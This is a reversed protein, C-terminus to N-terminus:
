VAVIYALMDNGIASDFSLGWHEVGDELIVAFPGEGTIEAYLLRSRDEEGQHIEERMMIPHGFYPTSYRCVIWQSLVVEPETVDTVCAPNEAHNEVGSVVVKGFLQVVVCCSGTHAIPHEVCRNPHEPQVM